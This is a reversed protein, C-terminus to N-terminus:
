NEDDTTDNTPMDYIYTPSDVREGCACEFRFAVSILLTWSRRLLTNFYLKFVSALGPPWKCVWHLSRATRLVLGHYEFDM